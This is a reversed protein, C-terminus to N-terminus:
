QIDYCIRLIRKWLMEKEPKEKKKTEMKEKKGEKKKRLSCVKKM